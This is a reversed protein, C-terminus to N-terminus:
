RGGLGVIEYLGFRGDRTKALEKFGDSPRVRHWYKKGSEDWVVHTPCLDRDFTAIRKCLAIKHLDLQVYERKKYDLSHSALTGPYGYFITRGSLTAASNHDAPSAIIADEPTNARILEALEMKVPNYVQYHQPSPWIRFFEYVGPVVLVFALLYHPLTVKWSIERHLYESWVVLFLTFVALFFKLQDWDWSALKVINGLLFLALILSLKMHAKSVAWVFGVCIFWPAANTVWMVASASISSFGAPQVPVAWGLMLSAMGSKGMLLPFFCVSVSTLVFLILFQQSLPLALSVRWSFQGSSLANERLALFANLFLYGGLFLASVLFYHTHVLPSLGLLAGALGIHLNGHQKFGPLNFVLSASGLCVAMGMLASRQTVWITSLWTTWPYGKSILSWSFADPQTFIAVLSGGGLLLVWPLFRARGFCLFAYACSWLLVWQAAFVTSLAPLEGFPRWLLTAWLNVFFPYSLTEGAFIHYSPPFDGQWTFHSIMGLHFTLDGYNNVWPTRIGDDISFLSFGLFVHFVFWLGFSVNLVGRLSNRLLDFAGTIHSRGFVLVAFPAITAVLWNAGLSKLIFVLSLHALLGFLWYFPVLSTNDFQDSECSGPLLRSGSRTLIYGLLYQTGTLLVIYILIIYEM